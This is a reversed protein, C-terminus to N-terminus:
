WASENFLAKCVQILKLVVQSAKYSKLSLSRWKLSVKQQFPDETFSQLIKKNFLVDRYVNVDGLQKLRVYIVM